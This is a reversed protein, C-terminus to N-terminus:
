RIFPKMDTGIAVICFTDDGLKEVVSFSNEGERSAYLVLPIEVEKGKIERISTGLLLPKENYREIMEWLGKRDMCYVDVPVTTVASVSTTVSLVVAAIYGRM